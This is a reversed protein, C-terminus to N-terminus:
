DVPAPKNFFYDVHNKGLSANKLREDDVATLMVVTPFAFGVNKFRDRAKKIVDLGDMTPLNYDIIVLSYNFSQPNKTSNILMALAEMGDFCYSINNKKIGM